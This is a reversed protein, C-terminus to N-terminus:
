PRAIRQLHDALRATLALHTLGPNASGGTPFVATTCVYLNDLGWLRLDADVVSDKPSSGMRLSGTPHYVDYLSSLDQWDAPLEIKLEAAEALVSQRWSAAVTDTMARLTRRDAERTQWDIQLRPRGWADCEDGLALRNDPHPAQEVDVQLLCDAHRPIWLQRRIGRWWALSSLDMGAAALLTPSLPPRSSGQQRGRLWDRVLDFGTNGPTIFTFHAFASGLGQRRQAQASLELRPTRMTRGQFIPGTAQNFRSKDRLLFRGATISLHDCFYRGIPSGASSLRLDLARDLELLSRTTELAGACLVVARAQVTLQRQGRGVALVRDLRTSAGDPRLGLGSVSANIWVEPGDPDELLHAFRQAFNRGKFPLWQSLRLEVDPDLTRLAQFRGRPDAAGPAADDALDLDAAVARFWASLSDAQLPWALGDVASRGAMDDATLPIMQGGWLASTGGLGFARGLEAGRYPVALHRCAHGMVDPRRTQEDGCELVTTRVGARHLRQALYLGATGGGVICVDTSRSVSTSGAQNLDHIM